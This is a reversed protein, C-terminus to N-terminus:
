GGNDFAEFMMIILDYLKGKIPTADVCEESDWQSFEGGLYYIVFTKEVYTGDEDISQAEIQCQRGGFDVCFNMSLVEWRNGSEDSFHPLYPTMM